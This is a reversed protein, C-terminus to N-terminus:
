VIMLWVFAGLAFALPVPAAAHVARLLSYRLRGISMLAGTAFQALICIGTLVVLLILIAQVEVNRLSGAVQVAALVVCGLAILKHLNFIATHYPKGARSLWVGSVLTLLFVVAPPIYRSLVDM